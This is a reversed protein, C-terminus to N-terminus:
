ILEKKVEGDEGPQKMRRMKAELLIARRAALRRRFGHVMEGLKPCSYRKEEIIEMLSERSLHLVEIYTLAHCRKCRIM